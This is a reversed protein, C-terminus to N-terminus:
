GIKISAKRKIKVPRAQKVVAKQVKRRTSQVGNPMFVEAPLGFYNKLVAIKGSGYLVTFQATSVIM